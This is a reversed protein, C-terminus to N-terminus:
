RALRRKAYKGLLSLDSLHALELIARRDGRNIQELTDSETARLDDM